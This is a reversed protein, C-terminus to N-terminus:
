LHIINSHTSTFYLTRQTGDTKSTEMGPIDPQTEINTLNNFIFYGLNTFIYMGPRQFFSFGVDSLILQIRLYFLNVTFSRGRIRAQIGGRPSLM